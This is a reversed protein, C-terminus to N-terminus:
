QQPPELRDAADADDLPRLRAEATRLPMLHIGPLAGGGCNALEEETAIVVWRRIQPYAARWRCVLRQLRELDINCLQAKYAARVAAWASPNPGANDYRDPFTLSKHSTPSSAIVNAVPVQRQQVLSFLERRVPDQRADSPDVLGFAGGPLLYQLPIWPFQERIGIQSYITAAQAVLASVRATDQKFVNPTFTFATLPRWFQHLARKRDEGEGYAYFVVDERLRFQELQQFAGPFLGIRGLESAHVFVANVSQRPAAAQKIDPISSLVLQLAQYENAHARARKSRGAKAEDPPETIYVERPQEGYHMQDDFDYTGNFPNGDLGVSWLHRIKDGDSVVHPPFRVTENRMLAAPLRKQKLVDVNIRVFGNVSTPRVVGQNFPDVVKRAQAGSGHSSTENSMSPSKRSRDSGLGGAPLAVAAAPRQQLQGVKAIKLRALAQAQTRVPPSMDREEEDEEDDVIFLKKRKSPPQADLSARKRAVPRRADEPSDARADERVVVKDIKFTKAPKALSASVTDDQSSRKHRRKPPPPPPARQGTGKAASINPPQMTTNRSRQLLLGLPIDPESDDSDNFVPRAPAPAPAAAYSTAIPPAAVAAPPEDDESGAFGGMNPHPASQAAAGAPQREDASNAFGEAAPPAADAIPMAEGDEDDAFGNVAPQAVPQAHQMPEDGDEDDSAAFGQAAGVRGGRESGNYSASVGASIPVVDMAANAAVPALQGADAEEDDDSSGAFGGLAPQPPQPTPQHSHAGLRITQSAQRPVLSPFYAGDDAEDGSDAFGGPVTATHVHYGVPVGYDEDDGSDAFGGEAAAAAPQMAQLAGFSQFDEGHGSVAANQMVAGSGGDDDRDAVGLRADVPVGLHAQQVHPPAPEDSAGDYRSVVFNGHADREPPPTLRLGRMKRPANTAYFEELAAADYEEAGSRRTTRKKPAATGAGAVSTSAVSSARSNNSIKRKPKVEKKVKGENAENAKGKGKKERGHPMAGGTAKKKEAAIRQQEERNRRKVEAKVEKASPKGPHARQVALLHENYVPIWYTFNDRPEWTNDAPDPYGKWQVLYRIEFRKQPDFLSPHMHERKDYLKYDLIREVEYTVDEDEVAGDAAAAEEVPAEDTAPKNLTLLAPNIGGSM